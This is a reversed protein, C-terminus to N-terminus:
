RLHSIQLRTFKCQMSTGQAMGNAELVVHPRFVHTPATHPNRISYSAVRSFPCNAAEGLSQLPMSLTFGPLWAASETGQHTHCVQVM